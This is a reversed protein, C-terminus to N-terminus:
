RRSSSEHPWISLQGAAPHSQREAKDRAFASDGCDAPKLIHTINRHSIWVPSPHTKHSLPAELPLTTAPPTKAYSGTHVTHPLAASQLRQGPTYSASGRPTPKSCGLRFVWEVGPEEKTYLTMVITNLFQYELSYYKEYV